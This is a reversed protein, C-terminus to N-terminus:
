SKWFAPTLIVLLTFLELRGLLMAFILVAKGGSSIGAYHHAVEGLGPGLNNLCASVASFATVPDIGTAHMAILLLIYSLIYLSLYGWVANVVNDHVPKGGLKIPIIANPHILRSSERAGQKFLLIIRVTKMGGATSGACGGATSLLILLIPLFSPWLHFETAIFGTTTMVSIVQVVSNVVSEGATAFVSFYQLMGVCVLTMLLLLALYTRAEPDDIYTRIRRSRFVGYHLAFNFGSLLMFVGAVINVAQSDFWALSADHTSFGGIAITSFAHGLADFWEMGALRYAVMCALTLVVYVYWLKKATEAIRPTLRSDKVPGPMEARYLQMGGIGLMPMVAVALVIIGMGGLWQLQQRYYLISVPLQDIGTFITAGTTSLGSMSEFFADLLTISYTSQLWLPLAGIASLVLWILVVILFGDRFRLESRRRRFPLWLLVGILLTVLFAILFPEVQGDDSFWAIALPPLMTSSFLGLLIGLIKCVNVLRM